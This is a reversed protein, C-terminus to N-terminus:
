LVHGTVVKKGVLARGIAGGQTLADGSHAVFVARGTFIQAGALGRDGLYDSFPQGAGAM